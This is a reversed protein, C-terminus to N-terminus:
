ATWRPVPDAPQDAFKPPATAAGALHISSARVSTKM